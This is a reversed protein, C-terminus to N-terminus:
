RSAAQLQDQPSKRPARRITNCHHLGFHIDPLQHISENRILPFRRRFLSGLPQEHIPARALFTAELGERVLPLLSDLLLVTLGYVLDVALLLQYPLAYDRNYDCGRVLLLRRQVLDHVGDVHGVALVVALYPQVNNLCRECLQAQKKGLFLYNVRACGRTIPM